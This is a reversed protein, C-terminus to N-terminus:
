QGCTCKLETPPRRTPVPALPPEPESPPAKGTRLFRPQAAPAPPASPASPTAPTPRLLGNAGTLSAKPPPAAAERLSPLPLKPKKSPAEEPAPAGSAKPPAAPRKTGRSQSEDDTTDPDITIQAPESPEGPEEEQPEEQEAEDVQQEPELVEAEEEGGVEPEEQEPEERVAYPNAPEDHPPSVPAQPLAAAPKPETSPAVNDLPRFAFYARARAILERCNENMHALPEWTAEEKSFGIWKVLFFEDGDDNKRYKLIEEVEYVQGAPAEAAMDGSPADVTCRM